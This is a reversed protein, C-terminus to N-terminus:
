RHGTTVAPPHTGWAGTSVAVQGAVALAASVLFISKKESFGIDGWAQIQYILVMGLAAFAAVREEPIRAWYYSRLAFFIGVVLSVWLGTFGLAGCFGWLGLVSNHPLFRYEKFFSIDDLQVVENYPRGFGTGVLPYYRMTALLNYNELDRFLTSRDVDAGADEVSRFLQVPAFLTSKSNWGVAVYVVVLPLAM